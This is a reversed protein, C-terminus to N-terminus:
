KGKRTKVLKDIEKNKSDCEINLRKELDRLMEICERTRYYYLLKSYVMQELEDMYEQISYVNIIAGNATYQGLVHKETQKGRVMVRHKYNDQRIGPISIRYQIEENNNIEWVCINDIALQKREDIHVCEGDLHGYVNVKVTKQLLNLYEESPM